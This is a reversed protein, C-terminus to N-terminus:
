QQSVIKLHLVSQPLPDEIMIDHVMGNAQIIIKTTNLHLPTGYGM